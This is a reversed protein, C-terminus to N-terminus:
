PRGSRRKGAVLRWLPTPPSGNARLQPREIRCALLYTAALGFPLRRASEVEFLEISIRYSESNECRGQTQM